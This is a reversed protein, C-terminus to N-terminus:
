HLSRVLQEPIHTGDFLLLAARGLSTDGRLLLVRGLRKRRGGLRRQRDFLHVTHTQALDRRLLLLCRSIASVACLARSAIHHLRSLRHSTLRGRRRSIRLM